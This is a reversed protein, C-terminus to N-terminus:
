VMFAAMATESMINKKIPTGMATEIPREAITPMSVSPRSGNNNIACRINTPSSLKGSIAIGRNIRAPLKIDALPM